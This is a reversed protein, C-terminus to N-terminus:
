PRDTRLDCGFAKICKVFNLTTLHHWESPQDGADRWASMSPYTSARSYANLLSELINTSIVMSQLYPALILILWSVFVFHISHRDIATEWIHSGQMHIVEFSLWWMWCTLAKLFCSDDRVKGMSNWQQRLLKPILNRSISMFGVVIVLGANLLLIRNSSFGPRFYRLMITKWESFFPYFARTIYLLMHGKFKANITHHIKDDTEFDVSLRFLIWCSADLLIICM